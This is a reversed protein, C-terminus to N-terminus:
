VLVVGQVEDEGQKLVLWLNEEAFSQRLRYEEGEHVFGIERLEQDRHDCWLRPSERLGYLAKEVMWYKGKEALGLRNLIRPPQMLVLRSREPGDESPKPQQKKGVEKLPANLFATKVDLGALHRLAVEQMSIKPKIEVLM